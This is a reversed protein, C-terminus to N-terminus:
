SSVAGVFVDELRTRMVKIEALISELEYQQECYQKQLTCLYWTCVFPRRIRPLMCGQSTLCPCAAGGGKVIQSPPLEKHLAFFLLLDRFDYWITARACCIDCCSICTKGCLEALIGDAIAVNQEIMAALREVETLNGNNWSILFFDQVQQWLIYESWPPCGPDQLAM